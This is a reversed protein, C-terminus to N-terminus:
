DLRLTTAPNTRSVRFAPLWTAATATAVLLAAVAAFTLPDTPDVGFLMARMARTGALALAVGVVLGGLVLALGRGVVLRRVDAASAGLALRIGMEHRRDRAFQAMVGYVGVLALVVGVGAFTLLLTMLFQQRRVSAARVDDMTRVSSIALAPDLDALARRVPGALLTPDGTARVLLVMATRPTQAHPTVIQTRTALNLSTQHVDGVVGVITIWAPDTGPAKSFVIRQGVPDENPFFERALTENVLAVPPADATERDTFDRGHLIPVHMAAFYGPTVEMHTVETGFADPDRGAISFSSTWGNGEDTLVLQSAAGAADAGPLAGAAEVFRQWFVRQKEPTDYRTGGANVEVALLGRTEFGPDVRVLAAYSRVLLGAGVALMVAIAVETVVLLNGWRPPSRRASGSHGSDKLVEAPARSGSWLAPAIGFVLGSATTVAALYALVRWDLPLSDVPLMGAPRLAVLARTGWWGVGTGAAGGIASLVLSETFAQRVLRGRGAGLSLRLAAERERGSARVLLLNGVNACAIVLLLAVAALLLTLPRETDRVLFRHLPTLGAGMVRNTDPYELKLGEAVAQLQADASELTAGPALRAIPRLWHARRFSAQGRSAPDWRMPIWADVSASPFEFGPPMVGAVEVPDGNIMITRGAIAPDAAFVDRWARDSLVMVPAAPQWTEDDRLARGLQPRVGLVSFFNGTVLAASLLRPEGAGTLTGDNAFDSYAAVDQFAAVRERWDLMNAPAATQQYWHYEPNEEWLMVLRDPEDFPLPHLVVASVASFIAANAGIGLALTTVATVALAPSRSLARVAYRIDRVVDEIWRVGWGDHHAEKTPEVGGFAVLARRRADDASMGASVNKEVERDLHFRIEEDLERDVRRFAVLSRLRLTVSRWTGM